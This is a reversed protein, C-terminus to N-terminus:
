ERNLVYPLIRGQQGKKEMGHRELVRWSAENEENCTAYIRELKLDEFGFKLVRDVAETVFGKQWFPEGIWYGIEAGKKDESLHLSIEGILEERERLIIAFVYRSQKVFGQHVYSIRFVGDPERYPHPINIIQDSIARNNAYKVLSDVDEVQLKRLNLRKTFLLLFSEM